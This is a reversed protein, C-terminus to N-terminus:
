EGGGSASTDMVWLGPYHRVFGSEAITLLASYPTQPSDYWYTDVTRREYHQPLATLRVDPVDTWAVAFNTIDGIGLNCRRLQLFNTAPTFGFDLDICGDLGDVARGDVYWRGDDGRTIRIECRSQGIWGTVGGTRTEWETTCEVWYNIRAGGEDHAFVARGELRWGDAVRYVRAADHGPTDIRRWSAYFM